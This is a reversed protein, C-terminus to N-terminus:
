AMEEIEKKAKEIELLQEPDSTIIQDESYSAVIKIAARKSGAFFIGEGVNSELLLFKEEDTLYFTDVIVKIAAPSQKLLLQISSNTVIPKGYRSTMFDTVDQTITTLGLYYKRCRKAIGFLFSAADEHQMMVWAEDIIMARRKTKSRILTWIFHLILYMAVPRLEEEMDRINFVVMGSEIDINTKNNLFGAFTGETYKKIRTAISETGTMNDLVMQLDGMTPPELNSFDADATIDKIAYTEAIAKDLLSDEDPTIKGLMVKILGAVDSIAKRLVDTPTEDGIATPLDFPNIHHKSSLSIRMFTGGVTECLHRYEDEPDIVIIDTEMMLSRLIELKIAYSKGAGSKAFIVMNANEMSFRDFLILSNNHRNIGYLIGQNSTLDSSVFPFTTSLPSTNMNNGIMLKDSGFPLTSNFGDEMQMVAPKLYILKAELISEIQTEIKLLEEKTDGYITIYIAFQFFHEIGQQLDDRLGEVDQYATELIPDRVLGKEENMSIQSQVQTVVKKLSKLIDATSQPHIFMAIDFTTDLNIIPSFWNTQLFRPYAYIFLTSAFKRNIMVYDSEIKFAAPAIIDKVTSLGKQYIKESELLSAKESASEKKQVQKELSSQKSFISM